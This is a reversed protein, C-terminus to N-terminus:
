GTLGSSRIESVQRMIAQFHNDGNINRTPETATPEPHIATELVRRVAGHAATDMLLAM